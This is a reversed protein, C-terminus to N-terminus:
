RDAKKYLKGKAKSRPKGKARTPARVEVALKKGPTMGSGPNWRKLDDIAVGYRKAVSAFSDGAKVTHFIRRMRIPIPPAYMIPLRRM